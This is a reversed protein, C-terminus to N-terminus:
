RSGKPPHFGTYAELVDAIRNLALASQQQATVLRDLSSNTTQAASVGYSVNTSVLGLQTQVHGLNKVIEGLRAHTIAGSNGLNLKM